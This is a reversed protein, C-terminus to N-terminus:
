SKSGRPLQRSGHAPMRKAPLLPECDSADHDPDDAPRNGPFCSSPRTSTPWITRWVDWKRGTMSTLGALEARKAILSAVVHSAAM